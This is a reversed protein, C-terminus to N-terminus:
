EGGGLEFRREVFPAEIMLGGEDRSIGAIAQARKAARYGIALGETM